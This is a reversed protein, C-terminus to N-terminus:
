STEGQDLEQLVEDVVDEIIQSMRQPNDLEQHVRSMMKLGMERNRGSNDKPLSNLASNIASAIAEGLSEEQESKINVLMVEEQLSKKNKKFYNEYIEQIETNEEESQGDDEPWDDFGSKVGLTSAARSAAEYSERFIVDISERIEEYAEMTARRNPRYDQFVGDIALTVAATLDAGSIEGPRQGESLMRKAEKRILNELNKTIKRM